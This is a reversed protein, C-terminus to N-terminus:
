GHRGTVRTTVAGALPATRHELAGAPGQTQWGSLGRGTRWLSWEPCRGIRREIQTSRACGRPSSKRIAAGTLIIRASSSGAAGSLMKWTYRGDGGAAGDRSRAPGGPWGETASGIRTHEIGGQQPEASLNLGRLCCWSQGTPVHLGSSVSAGACHRHAHTSREFGGDSQLPRPFAVRLAGRPLSASHLHRDRRKVSPLDQVGRHDHHM